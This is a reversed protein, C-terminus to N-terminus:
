YNLSAMSKPTLRPLPNSAEVGVQAQPPLCQLMKILNSRPAVEGTQIVSQKSVTRQLKFLPCQSALSISQTLLKLNSKEGERNSLRREGLRVERERSTDKKARLESRSETEMETAPRLIVVM